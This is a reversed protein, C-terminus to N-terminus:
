LHFKFYKFLDTPLGQHGQLLFIKFFILKVKCSLSLVVNQFCMISIRLVIFYFSNNIKIKSNNVDSLHIIIFLKFSLGLDILSILYFNYRIVIIIQNLLFWAQVISFYKIM